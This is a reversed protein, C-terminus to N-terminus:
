QGVDHWLEANGSLNGFGNPVAVNSGQQTMTVTAGNQLTWNGNNIFQRTGNNWGGAGNDFDLTAGDQVVNGTAAINFVANGQQNTYSLLVTSGAGLSVTGDVTIPTTSNGADQGTFTLLTAPGAALSMGIM